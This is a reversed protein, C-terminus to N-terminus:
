SLREGFWDFLDQWQGLNGAGPAQSVPRLGQCDRVTHGQTFGGSRPVSHVDDLNAQGVGASVGFAHHLISDLKQL